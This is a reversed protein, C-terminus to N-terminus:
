ITYDPMKAYRRRVSEHVIRELSLCLLHVVASYHSAINAQGPFPILCANFRPGLSQQPIKLIHRDDRATPGARYSSIHACDLEVFM